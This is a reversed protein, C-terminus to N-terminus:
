PGLNLKYGTVRVDWPHDVADIVLGMEEEYAQRGEWQFSRSTGAESAFSLWAASSDKDKLLLQTTLLPAAVYADVNRVVWVEGPPVVFAELAGSLGQQVFLLRTYVQAM